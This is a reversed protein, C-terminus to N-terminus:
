ELIELLEVIGFLIFLVGGILGTLKESCRNEIFKGIGMALVICTIHAACGGLIVSV